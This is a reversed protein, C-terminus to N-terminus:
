IMESVRNDAIRLKNAHPNAQTDCLSSEERANYVLILKLEEGM